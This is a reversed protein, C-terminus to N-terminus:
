GRRIVRGLMFGFVAAVALAQMPKAKVAGALDSLLDQPDTRRVYAAAEDVKRGVADVMEDAAEWDASNAVRDKTASAAERVADVAQDVKEAVGKNMAM